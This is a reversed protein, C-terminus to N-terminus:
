EAILAQLEELDPTCSESRDVEQEDAPRLIHLHTFVKNEHTYRGQASGATGVLWLM